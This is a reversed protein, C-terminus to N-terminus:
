GREIFVPIRGTDLPSAKDQRTRSFQQYLRSARYDLMLIGTLDDKEVKHILPLTFSERQQKLYRRGVPTAGLMRLYPQQMATQM